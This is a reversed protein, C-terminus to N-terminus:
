TQNEQTTLTEAETSDAPRDKTIADPQNLNHPRQIRVEPRPLAQVPMSVVFTSGPRNTMDFGQSEAWVRGGHAEVLGKVIALGLGPGAGMFKTEGTSHLATDGGRYFKGFIKDRDEPAIGVGNDRVRIEVAPQNTSRSAALQASFTIHGEDPTYKIANSLLQKLIQYMRNGDAEIPPLDDMGEVSATQHREALAKRAQTIVLEAITKLNVNELVLILQNMDIASLDLMNDIISGMRNGGREVGELLTMAQPNGKQIAILIDVYGQILTLPTKLEHAAISIFDTKAQELRALERNARSVEAAYELVKRESEAYRRSIETARAAQALQQAELYCEITMRSIHTFIGDLASLLGFAPEPDVEAAIHDWLDRRLTNILTLLDGVPEGTAVKHAAASDIISDLMRTDNNHAVDIISEYLAPLLPNEHAIDGAVITSTHDQLWQALQANTM